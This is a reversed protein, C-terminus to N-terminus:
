EVFARMRCEVVYNKIKKGETLTFTGLEYNGLFKKKM